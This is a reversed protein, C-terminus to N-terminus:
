KVRSNTPSNFGKFLNSFELVAMSENYTYATESSFDM